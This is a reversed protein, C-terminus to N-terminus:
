STPPDCQGDDNWGWCVLEGDPRLGCTHWGGASISTFAGPPPSAQNDDDAGWCIVTGDARIGCTHNNGASLATFAGAPPTAQGEGDQGWCEATGDERLGCSHFGGAAVAVFTGAPAATEGDTDSGWCTVTGDSRLACTHWNGTSVATFTGTPTDGFAGACALTGATRIACTALAGADVSVYTDDPPGPYANDGWGVLTGDARLGYSHSTGAAVAVFDGVEVFPTAQGHLDDGWCRVEGDSRVACTHMGGASVALWTACGDASCGAPCDVDDHDYSCAGTSCEGVDAFTRQTTDDVCTTAPPSECVVGECPDQCAGAVCGGPCARDEHAYSCTGDSCSGVDAFTRSTSAGVCTSAPPTECTVGTCAEDADPTAPAADATGADSGAASSSGCAFATVALLGIVARM